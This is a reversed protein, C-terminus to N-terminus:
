KFKSCHQKKFVLFFILIFLYYRVSASLKTFCIACEIKTRLSKKKKIAKFPNLVNATKFFEDCSSDTLKELLEPKDWKLHSLLIRTTTAPIKFVFCFTICYQVKFGSNTISLFVKIISNIETIASEMQEVIEETTLIEYRSLPIDDERSDDDMDFDDIDSDYEM